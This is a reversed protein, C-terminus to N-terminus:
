GSIALMRRRLKKDGTTTSVYTCIYTYNYNRSLWIDRQAANVTAAASMQQIM